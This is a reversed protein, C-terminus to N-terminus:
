KRSNMGFPGAEGKRGISKTKYRQNIRVESLSIQNSFSPSCLFILSYKLNIM